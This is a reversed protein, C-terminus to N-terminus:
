RWYSKDCREKEQQYEWLYMRRCHQKHWFFIIDFMTVAWDIQEIYCRTCLMQDRRGGLLHNIKRSIKVRLM